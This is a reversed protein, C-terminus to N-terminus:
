PFKIDPNFKYGIGHVSRIYDPVDPTPRFKRRLNSVHNSIARYSYSRIPGVYTALLASHYVSQSFPDNRGRAPIVWKSTPPLM